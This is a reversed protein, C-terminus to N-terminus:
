EFNMEDQEHDQLKWSGDNQQVMGRHETCWWFSPVLYEEKLSNLSKNVLAIDRKVELQFDQSGQTGAIGHLYAELNHWSGDNGLNKLYKSKQTDIELVQGVDSYGLIPVLPILDPDNVIRLLSLHQMSQIVDRFGSNGVRPSGFVFATVPCHQEPQDKSMNIGSAVIDAANLTALAAGLSHGTVTISIEENKFKQVLEKLKTNVQERASTKNYPSKADESTYMSLWGRHVQPNKSEGFLQSASVLPSDFDAIWELAQISGRWAVVIDRRGLIEKGEDTTVAIYGMWNSEKNWAERSLSRLLFCEPLPIHSTAYFYKVAKYKFPNAKALGARSFLNSKSYRCDGAFKSVRQFIFSDYTVQAMEGYHILYRRLDIDLPDLLGKWDSRGSLLKWRKAINGAM